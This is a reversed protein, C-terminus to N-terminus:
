WHVDESRSEQIFQFNGTKHQPPQRNISSADANSIGAKGCREIMEEVWICYKWDEVRLRPIESTVFYM